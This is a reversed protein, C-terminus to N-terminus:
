CLRFHFDNLRFFLFHFFRKYLYHHHHTHTQKSIKKKNRIFNIQITEAKTKITVGKENYNIKTKFKWNDDKKKSNWNECCHLLKGSHFQLSFFCFLVFCVPFSIRIWLLVVDVNNKMWKNLSKLSSKNCWLVWVCLCM